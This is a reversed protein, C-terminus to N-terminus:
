YLIYDRESGSPAAVISVVRIHPLLMRIDTAQKETVIASKLYEAEEGRYYRIQVLRKGDYQKQSM